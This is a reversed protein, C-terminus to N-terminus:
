PATGPAPTGQSQAGQAGPIVPGGPAPSPGPATAWLTGYRQQIDASVKRASRVLLSKDLRGRRRGALQEAGSADEALT